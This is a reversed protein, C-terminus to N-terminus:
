ERDREGKLIKELTDHEKETARDMALKRCDRRFHGVEECYYCKHDERVRKPTVWPPRPANRGEKPPLRTENGSSHIKDVERAVAMMIRVKTKAKEEERRPYVRLAEKLLENMGKEQRDELKELKRRIDPWSKTVFQVKLLVQGEPLNAKSLEGNCPSDAISFLSSHHCNHAIHPFGVEGADRCTLKSVIRIAKTFKANDQSSVPQLKQIGKKFCTVATYLCAEVPNEPTHLLEADKDKVMTELQKIKQHIQRYTVTRSRRCDADATLVMTSCFFFMCFIITRNM